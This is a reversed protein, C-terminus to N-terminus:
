SALIHQPQDTSWEDCKPIYHKKTIHQALIKCWKTHVTSSKKEGLNKSVDSSTVYSSKWGDVDQAFGM